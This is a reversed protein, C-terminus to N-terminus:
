RGPDVLPKSVSAFCVGGNDLATRIGATIDSINRSKGAGVALSCSELFQVAVKSATM